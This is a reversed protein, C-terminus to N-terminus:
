SIIVYFVIDYFLHSIKIEIPAGWLWFFSTSAEKIIASKTNKKFNEKLM